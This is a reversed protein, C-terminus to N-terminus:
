SQIVDKTRSTLDSDLFARTYKPISLERDVDGVESGERRRPSSM